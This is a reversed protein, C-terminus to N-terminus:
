LLTQRYLLVLGFLAFVFHSTNGVSELSWSEQDM